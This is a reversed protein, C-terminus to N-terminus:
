GSGQTSGLSAACGSQCPSARLLPRSPRLTTRSMEDGDREYEDGDLHRPQVRPGDEAGARPASRPAPLPVRGRTRLLARRVGLGVGLSLLTVASVVLLDHGTLGLPRESAAIIALAGLTGILIHGRGPSRNYHKVNGEM